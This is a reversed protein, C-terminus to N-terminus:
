NQDVLRVVLGDIHAKPFRWAGRPGKFAPLGLPVVQGDPTVLERGAMRALARVDHTPLGLRDAVYRTDVTTQAILAHQKQVAHNKAVVARLHEDEFDDLLSRISLIAPHENFTM